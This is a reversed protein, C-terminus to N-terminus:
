DRPDTKGPTAPARRRRGNLGREKIRQVIDQYYFAYMPRVDEYRQGARVEFDVRAQRDAEYLRQGHRLVEYQLLPSATNLLVVDVKHGRLLHQIEGMLYLYRDARLDPELNASLLLALDVDSGPHARGQAVSGFLYAAVVEDQTALFACLPQFDIALPSPMM